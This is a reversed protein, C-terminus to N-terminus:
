NSSGTTEPWLWDRRGFYSAGRTALPPGTPERIRTSPRRSSASEAFFRVIVHSFRRPPQSIQGLRPQRQQPNGCLILRTPAQRLRSAALNDLRDTVLSTRSRRTTGISLLHDAFTNSKGSTSRRARLQRLQPSPKGDGPPERVKKRHSPIQLSESRGSWISESAGVRTGRCTARTKSKTYGAPTEPNPAFASRFELGCSIFSV